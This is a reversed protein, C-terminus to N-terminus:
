SKSAILPPHAEDVCLENWYVREFASLLGLSDSKSKQQPDEVEVSYTDFTKYQSDHVSRSAFRQGGTYGGFSNKGDVIGCISIETTTPGKQRTVVYSSRIVMSEPDKMHMRLRKQVDDEAWGIPGVSKNRIYFGVILVLPIAVVLILLAKLFKM